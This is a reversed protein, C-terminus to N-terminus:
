AFLLVCRLRKFDLADVFIEIRSGVGRAARQVGDSSSASAGV